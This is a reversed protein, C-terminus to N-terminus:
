PAPSRESAWEDILERIAGWQQDLGIDLAGLRCRMRCDGAALDDRVLVTTRAIGLSEALEEVERTDPFDLRSVEIAVLMERDIRALQHKALGIVVAERAGDEGFLKAIANRAVLLGLLETRGLLDDLRDSAVSIGAALLELSKERDENVEAEATARGAAEGEARAAELAGPHAAVEAELESVVDRLRRLEATVPDERAAAKAAPAPELPVVVFGHSDDGAKLIQSM